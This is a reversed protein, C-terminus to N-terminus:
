NNAKDANSGTLEIGDDNYPRSRYCLISIEWFFRSDKIIIEMWHKLQDSRQYCGWWGGGWLHTTDLTNHTSPDKNKKLILKIGCM